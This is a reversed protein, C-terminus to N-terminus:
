INHEILGGDARICAENRKRNKNMVKQLTASTIEACAQRIWNEM